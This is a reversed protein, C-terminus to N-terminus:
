EWITRQMGEVGLPNQQRYQILLQQGEPRHAFVPEGPSVHENWRRAYATVVAKTTGLAEPVAHWQALRLSSQADRKRSGRPADALGLADWANAIFGALDGTQEYRPILYRQDQLPSLAELVSRAFLDADDASARQLFVRYFGDSRLTIGIDGERHQRSVQGTEQLAQLVATAMGQLGSQTTQSHGGVKFASSVIQLLGAGRALPREGFNKEVRVEVTAVEVGRYPQGIRWAQYARERQTARELMEANITDLQAGLKQPATRTLAPHVHGVGSAIQGDECLGHFGLHKRVFREYDNFGKQFEPAVCVVDWNNAVKRPHRPDLRLSRGRLQNTSMFATVSTLDVLTNVSLADWGEGLLSRTGVLCRTVGQELMATVLRVYTRTNWDSGTGKIESLKLGAVPIAELPIPSAQAELWRRMEPLLKGTMDADCIVTSGTILIPDLPDTEPRVALERIVAYAGGAEGDLIGEVERTATASAKEFDTLVLARTDDGLAKAEAGLIRVLAEIKSGSLALVRDVPAQHQRFGTETLLLGLARTSTAIQQHLAHHEAASSLKLCNLAYDELVFAWDALTIAAATTAPPIDCAMPSGQSRLLKVGAEALGPHGKSFTPWSREAPPPSTHAAHKSGPPPTAGGGGHIEDPELKRNIRLDLWSLFHSDKELLRRAIQAFQEHQSAIFHQERPLPRTLIVLDQYPALNGEKVVAPTPIQFDIDGVLDLYRSLEADQRDIPPTATLGVVMPGDLRSIVDGVVLAWFGTLHHCEDLVVTGVRSAVLQDVLIRVNPHLLRSVDFSPDALMQERVRAKHAGLEKRYDAENSERMRDIRAQAGERTLKRAEVLEDLWLRLAAEALFADDSTATTLSQYTLSRLAVDPKAETSAVQELPTGAPLFDKCKDVWQVQIATNPAFVVAPRGLRRILEIGLITKGSGPPAVIHFQHQREKLWAHARELVEAQSRRFTKHYQLGRLLPHEPGQPRNFAM